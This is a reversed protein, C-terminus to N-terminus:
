LTKGLQLLLGLADFSVWVESIRGGTVRYLYLGGFTVSTGTAAIGIFPGRHTGRATWRTAVRDGEAILDHTTVALDPFATRLMAVAAKPGAEVGRLDGQPTHALVGPDFLDDAAALDGNNVGRDLWAQVVRKNAEITM